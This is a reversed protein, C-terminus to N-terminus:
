GRSTIELIPQNKEVSDGTKTTISEIIGSIPSKLENEMKMAELIVLPQDQHVEDGVSALISLVKGPMPAKLIGDSSTNVTSFGLKELLQDREDLVQASFTQGQIRFQVNSGEWEIDTIRFVKSDLRILVGSPESLMEFVMEKDGIWATQPVGFQVDQDLRIETQQGQIETSYRM